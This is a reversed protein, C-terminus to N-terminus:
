DGFVLLSNQFYFAFSTYTLTYERGKGKLVGASGVGVISKNPGVDLPTTGATDYSCSLLTYGSDCTGNTTILYQGASTGGSCTTIAGSCCQGNTTGETGTFDWTRDIM